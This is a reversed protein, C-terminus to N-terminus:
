NTWITCPRRSSSRLRGKVSSNLTQAPIPRATSVGLLNVILLSDSPRYTTYRFPGSATTEIRVAQATVQTDVEVTQTPPGPQASMPSAIIALGVLVVCALRCAPWNIKM